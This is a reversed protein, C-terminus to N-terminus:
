GERADALTLAFVPTSGAKEVAQKAELITTGTTIIDDVLILDRHRSDHYSFNRKHKLRYQLSKGAYSISNGARMKRFLPTISESQLAKALIATHAYGHKVHDDIGVAYLPTDFSFNQAFLHLSNDALIKYIAQGIHTHKTKLLPAIEGYRYFSIVKFDDALYRTTLTPALFNNQCTQCILVFSIKKCLLCRIM